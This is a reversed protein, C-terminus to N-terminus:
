YIMYIISGWSIMGFFIYFVMRHYSREDKVFISLLKIVIVILILIVAITELSM